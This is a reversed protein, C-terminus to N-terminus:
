EWFRAVEMARRDRATVHLDRRYEFRAIRQPADGAGFAYGIAEGLASVALSAALAPLARVLPPGAASRRTDRACRRLRVVPILPTAAVWFLRKPLGADQTREGAFARSQLFTARIWSAPRSFSFHHTRARPELILRWGNKRLDWHLVSEAVLWTELDAEYPDLAARRYSSNHGPLYAVDGGPTPDIWPGYGLLYDAWAISGSVNAHAVVPGVAATREDYADVLARAWGDEPYCHDETFVVFPASAARIGAAYGVAGACERSEVEVTRHGAFGAMEESPVAFSGGRPVVFVVEIRDAISQAALHRVTTRVPNWGDPAVVIATLLPASADEAASM